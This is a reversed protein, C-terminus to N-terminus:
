EIAERMTAVTEFITNGPVGCYQSQQLLEAMIPRLRNAIIRALINYDINFLAIPRFDGPTTGSSKPLCVIVGHEQQTSVKRDTFMQNM